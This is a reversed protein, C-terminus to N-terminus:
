PTEAQPKKKSLSCIQCAPFRYQCAVDKGIESEIASVFEAENSYTKGNLRALRDLVERPIRQERLKELSRPDLKFGEQARREEESTEAQKREQECSMNGAKPTNPKIDPKGQEGKLRNIEDKLVQNEHRLMANESAVEEVLNLLVSVPRKTKLDDIRELDLQISNLVNSIETTRM